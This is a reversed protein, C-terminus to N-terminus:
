GVAELNQAVIALCQYASGSTLVEAAIVLLAEPTGPHRDRRSRRSEFIAMVRARQCAPSQRYKLFHSIELQFFELQRGKADVQGLMSQDGAIYVRHHEDVAIMLCVLHLEDRRVSARDGHFGRIGILHRTEFALADQM